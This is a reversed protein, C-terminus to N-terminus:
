VREGAVVYHVAMGERNSFLHIKVVMLSEHGLEGPPVIAIEHLDDSVLAHGAASGIFHHMLLPDQNRIIGLLYPRFRGHGIEATAYAHGIKALLRGVVEANGFTPFTVNQGHKARLANLREGFEPLTGVSVGGSFERAEAALGYLIATLPFVFSVLLGPYEGAPVYHKKGDILVAFKEAQRAVRRAAGRGKSPFNLQRRIPLFLRRTNEGEFASTVNQCANCSAGPLELAGGLSEPIIHELTLRGPLGDSGCYICRGVPDYVHRRKMRSLPPPIVEPDAM